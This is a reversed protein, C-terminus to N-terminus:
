GNMGAIIIDSKIGDIWRKTINEREMKGEINMEM